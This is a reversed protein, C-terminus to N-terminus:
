KEEDKGKYWTFNNVIHRWFDFVLKQQNEIYQQYIRYMEYEPYYRSFNSYYSRDGSYGTAGITINGFCNGPYSKIAYTSDNGAAALGVALPPQRPDFHLGTDNPPIGHKPNAHVAPVLLNVRMMQNQLCKNPRLWKRIGLGTVIVTVAYVGVGAIQAPIRWPGILSVANAM